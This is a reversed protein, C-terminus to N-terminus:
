LGMQRLIKNFRPDNILTEFVPMVKIFVMSGDKEEYSKQLWQIARDPENLATYIIANWYPSVYKENSQEELLELIM